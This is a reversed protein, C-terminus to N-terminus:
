VDHTLQLNIDAVLLASYGREWSLNTIVVPSYEGLCDDSLLRLVKMRYLTHDLELLHFNNSEYRLTIDFYRIPTDEGIRDITVIAFNFTHVLCPDDLSELSVTAERDRQIGGYNVFNWLDPYEYIETM